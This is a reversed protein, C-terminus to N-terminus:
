WQQQCTFHLCCSSHRRSHFGLCSGAQMGPDLATKKRRRRALEARTGWNSRSSWTSTSTKTNSNTTDSLRRSCSGQVRLHDSRSRNTQTVTTESRDSFIFLNYINKLRVAELNSILSRIGREIRHANSVIDDKICFYCEEICSKTLMVVEWVAVVTKNTDWM